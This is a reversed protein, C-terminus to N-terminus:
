NKCRYEWLFQKNLDKKIVKLSKVYLKSLSQMFKYQVSVAPGKIFCAIM